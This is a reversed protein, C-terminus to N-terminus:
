PHLLLNTADVGKPFRYRRVVDLTIVAEELFNEAKIRM